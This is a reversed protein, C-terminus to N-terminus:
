TNGRVRRRRAVKPHCFSLRSVATSNEPCVSQSSESADTDRSSRFHVATKDPRSPLFFNNFLYDAFGFVKLQVQEDLDIDTGNDDENGTSLELSRFFARLFNDQSVPSLAYDYTLRVLRSRRYGGGIDVVNDFHDVIRYFKSSAQQRANPGLPPGTAM